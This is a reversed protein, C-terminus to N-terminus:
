IDDWKMLLGEEMVRKIEHRLRMSRERKIETKTPTSYIHNFTKEIIKDRDFPYCGKEPSRTTIFFDTKVKDSDSPNVSGVRVDVCGATKLTKLIPDLSDGSHICTDFILIPKDKQDILNKYVEKLENLIEEKSRIRDPSENLDDKWECDRVIEDIEERSLEERVKFGKPNMFYMNPIKENPYKNKLYERVGVYLPRSSRDVVIMNPVNEERLYEAIKQSYDFLESREKRDEFFEYPRFEPVQEQKPVKPGVKEM